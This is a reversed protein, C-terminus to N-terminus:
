KCTRPLYKPEINTMNHGMRVFYDPLQAYGCNWIINGGAIKPIQSASFSVVKHALQPFVNNFFVNITGNGDFVVKSITGYKEDSKNEIVHKEPWRGTQAYYMAVQLRWTSINVLTDGIRAKISYNSISSTSLGVLFIIVVLTISSNMLLYYIYKM